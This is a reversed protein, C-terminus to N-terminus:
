IINIIIIIIPLTFCGQQIPLAAALFTSGFLDAQSYDSVLALDLVFKSFM